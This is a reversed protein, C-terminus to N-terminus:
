GVRRRLEARRGSSRPVLGAAAPIGGAPGCAVGSCVASVSQRVPLPATHQGVADAGEPRAAGRPMVARSGARAGASCSRLEACVSESLHLTTAFTETDPYLGACVSLETYVYAGKQTHLTCHRWWARSELRAGVRLGVWGRGAGTPESLDSRRSTSCARSPTCMSTWRRPTAHGAILAPLIASFAGAREDQAQLERPDRAKAPAATRSCTRARPTEWRTARLARASSSGHNRSGGSRLTCARKCPLARQRASRQACLRHLPLCGATRAIFSPMWGSYKSSTM